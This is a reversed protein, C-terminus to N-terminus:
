DLCHGAFSRHYFCSNLINKYEPTFVICLFNREVLIQNESNIKSTNTRETKFGNCTKAADFMACPLVALASLEWAALGAAFPLSPLVVV